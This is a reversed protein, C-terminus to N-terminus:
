HYYILNYISSLNIYTTGTSIAVTAFIAQKITDNSGWIQAGFVASYSASSNLSLRSPIQIQKSTAAAGTVSYWYKHKDFFFFFNSSITSITHHGLSTHLFTPYPATLSMNTTRDNPDAIDM